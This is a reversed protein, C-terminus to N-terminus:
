TSQPKAAQVVQSLRHTLLNSLTCFLHLTLRRHAWKRSALRIEFESIQHVRPHTIEGSLERIDRPM